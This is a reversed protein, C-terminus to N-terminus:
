KSHLGKKVTYKDVRRSLKKIRTNYEKEIVPYIAGLFNEFFYEGSATVTICSAKGFAVSAVDYDFAANLQEKIYKDTERLLTIDGETSGTSLKGVDDLNHIGYKDSMEKIYKDINQLATNLRDPFNLDATDLLLKRGSNGLQYEKKNQDPNFDIVNSIPEAKKINANM